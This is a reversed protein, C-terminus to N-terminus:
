SPLWLLSHQQSAQHRRCIEILVFTIIPSFVLLLPWLYVLPWALGAIILGWGILALIFLIPNDRLPDCRVAVIRQVALVAIGLLIPSFAAIAAIFDSHFM